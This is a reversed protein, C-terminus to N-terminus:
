WEYRSILTGGHAVELELVPIATKELYYLSEWGEVLECRTVPVDASVRLRQGESM